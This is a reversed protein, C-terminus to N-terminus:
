QQVTVESAHLIPDNDDAFSDRYMKGGVFDSHEDVKGYTSKQNATQGAENAVYFGKGPVVVIGSLAGNRNNGVVSLELEEWPVNLNGVTSLDGTEIVTIGRDQWRTILARTGDFAIDIPSRVEFSAIDKGDLGMRFVKNGKLDAVWLNGKPDIRLGRLDTAGPVKFAGSNDFGGLTAGCICGDKEKLVWRNITGEDRDSGFLVLDQGDRQLAIGECAGTPIRYQRQELDADYVLVENENTIYVRGKDDVAIAKALPGPLVAVTAREYDAVTLDIKRVEGQGSFSHMYGAYLYQGDPSIGLSRTHRPSVKQSKGLISRSNDVLYQVSWKYADAAHASHLLGTFASIAAALIAFSSTKLRTPPMSSM